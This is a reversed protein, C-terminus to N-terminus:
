LMIGFCGALCILWSILPTDTWCVSSTVNWPKRGRRRANGVQWAMAQKLLIELRGESVVVEGEDLGNASNESPSDIQGVAESVARVREVV